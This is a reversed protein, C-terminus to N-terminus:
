IFSAQWDQGVWLGYVSVEFNWSKITEVAQNIQRHHEGVDVSNAACDYHGVVVISKSQHKELSITVRSKISEIVDGQKNESLIKDSGPETILDVYDVVLEKKIFSIVSEQTRGDICNIATAFIHKM